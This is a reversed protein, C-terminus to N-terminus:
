SSSSGTIQNAEDLRLVGCSPDLSLFQFVGFGKGVQGFLNKLFNQVCNIGAVVGIVRKIIEFSNQQPLKALAFLL